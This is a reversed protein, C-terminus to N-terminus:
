GIFDSLQRHNLSTKCLKPRLYSKKDITKFEM